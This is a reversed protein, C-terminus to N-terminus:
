DDRRTRQGLGPRRTPLRRTGRCDVLVCLPSLPFTAGDGPGPLTTAPGLVTRVRVADGLLFRVVPKQRQLGVNEM